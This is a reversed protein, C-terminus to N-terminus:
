SYRRFPLEPKRRRRRQPPAEPTVKAPRKADSEKLADAPVRYRARRGRGVDVARLAGSAIWARVTDPSVGYRKAVQPPTLMDSDPTASTSGARRKPRLAKLCRSLYTKVAEPNDGDSVRLTLGIAHVRPVGALAMANAVEYVV